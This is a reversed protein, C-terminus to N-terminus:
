RHSGNADAHVAVIIINVRTIREHRRRSTKKEVHKGTRKLSEEECKTKYFRYAAETSVFISYSDPDFFQTFYSTLVIRTITTICGSGM